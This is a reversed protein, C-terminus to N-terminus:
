SKLELPQKVRPSSGMVQPNERQEGSRRSRSRRRRRERESDIM